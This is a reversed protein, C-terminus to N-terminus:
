TTAGRVQQAVLRDRALTDLFNALITDKGRTLVRTVDEGDMAKINIVVNQGGGGHMDVPIRRGDPLPVFAEGRAVNSGEGFLALTPSRAIGGRAFRRFPLVGGKEAAITETVEGPAIGGGEFLGAAAQLTKMILLRAIIKALDALMAKAFDKFAEKASKTGTIVDAFSDTLRSLGSGVIANAAELGAERMDRFKNTLEKAREGFADFFSDFDEAPPPDEPKPKKPASFDPLKAPSANLAAVKARLDDFSQGLQKAQAEAIAQAEVLQNFYRQAAFVEENTGSLEAIVIRAAAGLLNFGRVVEGIKFGIDVIVEVVSVLFNIVDVLAAKIDQAHELAFERIVDFFEEFAPAAQAVVTEAISRFTTTLRDFSSQMRRINELQEGSLALGAREQEAAWQRLADGGQKLIPLLKAGSDGFLLMAVRTQESSDRIGAIRDAVNAFVEVADKHQGTLAETNLGLKRFADAQSSSGRAAEASNKQLDRFADALENFEVGSEAAANRLQLLSESTTGLRDAAINVETLNSAISAFRTALARIAAAGAIAALASQMSALQKAFSQAALQGAKFSERINQGIRRVVPSSQDVAKSVIELTRQQKAVM